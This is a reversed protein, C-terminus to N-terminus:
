RAAEAGGPRPAGSAEAIWREVWTAVARPADIRVRQGTGANELTWPGEARVQLVFTHRRTGAGPGPDLDPESGEPMQM